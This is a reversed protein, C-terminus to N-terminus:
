ARLNIVTFLIKILDTFVKSSNVQMSMLDFYNSAGVLRITNYIVQELTNAFIESEKSPTTGPSVNVETLHPNFDEDVLFDIRVMEFFNRSSSYMQLTQFQFNLMFDNLCKM